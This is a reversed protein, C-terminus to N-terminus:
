NPAADPRRTMRRKHNLRFGLLVAVAMEATLNSSRPDSRGDTCTSIISEQIKHWKLAICRRCDKAVKALQNGSCLSDRKFAGSFCVIETQGQCERSKEHSLACVAQWTWRHRNAELKALICAM